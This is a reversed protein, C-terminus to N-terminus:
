ANKKSQKAADLAGAAKVNRVRKARYHKEVVAPTNGLQDAIETTTLGAEDLLTAVTHRWVHSTVWAFGSDQLADRLRNITNSPDLWGGDSAAFVPGDGAALKRRRWMPASWDPVRLLVGPRNGKRGPERVLGEGTVRVLHSSILVATYGEDDMTVDEGGIALVEGIRVGTSMMGESLDALDHWVIGRRGIRRGKSDRQKRTAYDRLGAWMQEVEDFTMAVVPKRDQKGEKLRATSRVPNTDLAEHRVALGCVASLITRVTKASALGLKDRTDKILKDCAGVKVEPRLRLADMRPRVHGDLMSVYTRKTGAAM